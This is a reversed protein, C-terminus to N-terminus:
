TTTAECKICCKKRHRVAVGVCKMCRVWSHIHKIAAYLLGDPRVDIGFQATGRTKEVVDLRLAPAWSGLREASQTPLPPMSRPTQVVSRRANIPRRTRSSRNRSRLETAPRGVQASSRACTAASAASADAGAAARSTSGGHAARRPCARHDDDRIAPQRASDALATVNGYVVSKRRSWM